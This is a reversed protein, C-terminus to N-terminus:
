QRAFEENAEAAAEQLTHALTSDIQLSGGGPLQLEHPLGVPSRDYLQQYMVLAAIYTGEVSPHFGDPGYLPADPDLRWAARWAEGVPFLLGHVGAAADRYSQSVADFAETRTSEPWVMYLAPRAGISDALEAFRGAWTALHLQNAPTSSPGQQMVVFKWGGREIESRARGDYWHDELSYNPFALWGTVLQEQGDAAALAAVIVPLDNTYTLSNGIFLVAKGEVPGAPETASGLCSPLFAVFLVALVVRVSAPHRM